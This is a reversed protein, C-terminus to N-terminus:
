KVQFIDEFNDNTVLFSWGSNKEFIKATESSIAGTTVLIGKTAKVKNMLDFLEKVVDDNVNYTQSYKKIIWLCKIEGIQKEKKVTVIYANGDHNLYTTCYAWNNLLSEEIANIFDGKSMISLHKREKLINLATNLYSITSNTKSNPIYPYDKPLFDDNFYDTFEQNKPLLEQDIIFNSGYKKELDNSEKM